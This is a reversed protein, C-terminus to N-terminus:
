RGPPEDAAETKTPKAKLVRLVAIVLGTMLIVLDVATGVGVYPPMSLEGTLLSVVGTAAEAIVFPLCTFTFAKAMAMREKGGKWPRRRSSWVGAVLLIIAFVLAIIPKYNVEVEPPPPQGQVTVVLWREAETNNLMDNSYYSINHVGEPLTFGVSYVSWSGGDIRYRTVNVGCGSDTATLTFLTDTM